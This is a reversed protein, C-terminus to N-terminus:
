IAPVCLKNIMWALDNIKDYTVLWSGWKNLDKLTANRCKSEFVGTIIGNRTTFGDCLAPNDKNTEIINVNYKSKIISIMNKEHKLSEQGKETLIDM